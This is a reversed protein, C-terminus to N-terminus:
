EWVEDAAVRVTKTCEWGESYRSIVDPGASLLWCEYELFDSVGGSLKVQFRYKLVNCAQVYIAFKAFSALQVLNRSELYTTLYICDYLPSLVRKLIM